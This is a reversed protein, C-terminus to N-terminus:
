GMFSLMSEFSEDVVPMGEGAILSIGIDTCTEKLMCAM